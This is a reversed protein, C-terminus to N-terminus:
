WNIEYKIRKVMDLVLAKVGDKKVREHRMNEYEILIDDDCDLATLNQLKMIAKQENRERVGLGDLVAVSNFYPDELSVIITPTEDDTDCSYDNYVSAGVATHTDMIYDDLDFFTFIAQKTDEEDAWGAEFVNEDTIEELEFRGCEKLEQYCDRVIHSDHEAVEFILRELNKCFLKDLDQSMTAYLERDLDYVGENFFDVLANNANTAVIIKHIPLGMKYAYYASLVNTLNASPISFNIEDGLEVEGCRVLDCYSDIVCCTMALVRAINLDEKQQLRINADSIANKVEDDKLANKLESQLTNFDGDYEYACFNGEEIGGILRRVVLSTDKPYVLMTHADKLECYANALSLDRSVAQVSLTKQTLGKKERLAFSLKTLLRAGLDRFIHSPGHWLELMYLGDEVKILGDTDEDDSSDFVNSVVEKLEDLTLEDVFLSLIKAYREERDLNCLASIDEKSLIPLSSPVYLGGDNPICNLIADSASVSTQTNRTDTFKM